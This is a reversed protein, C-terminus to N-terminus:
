HINLRGGTRVQKESLSIQIIKNLKVLYNTLFYNNCLLLGMKNSFDSTAGTKLQKELLLSQIITNL